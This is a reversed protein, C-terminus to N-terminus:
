PTVKRDVHVVTRGRFTLTTTTQPDAEAPLYIWQVAAAKNRNRATPSEHEIHDPAGIRRRVESAGMGPPIFRREGANFNKRPKAKPPRARPPPRAEPPPRMAKEIEPRTAFRFGQNPTADVAEGRAGYRCSKDQYTVSGDPATCRLVAADARPAPVCWALAVLWLAPSLFINVRQM